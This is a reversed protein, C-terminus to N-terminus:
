KRRISLPLNLVRKLWFNEVNRFFKYVLGPELRRRTDISNVSSLSAKMESPTSVAWAVRKYRGDYPSFKSKIALPKFGNLQLANKLSNVTFFNIHTVPDRDIHIGQWIELPVEIYVVGNDTLVARLERLFEGPDSVHELVHSCILIDFKTGASVDKLTNGIREVGPYPTPNFDVLYCSSGQELFPRLLRGDGGGVDLVKQSEVKHFSAIMKNMFLERQHDLRIARPTPESLTGISGKENLYKYKAELDQQNPRPSYCMFGCVNCYISTLTIEKKGPFWVNFLIQRRIDLYNSYYNSNNEAKKSQDKFHHEKVKCWNNNHCCPCNFSIEM